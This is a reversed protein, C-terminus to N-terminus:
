RGSAARRRAVLAVVGFVSAAAAILALAFVAVPLEDAVGPSQDVTEVADPAPVRVLEGGLAKVLDGLTQHTVDPDEVGAPQLVDGPGILWYPHLDEPPNADFYQPGTAILLRAGIPETIRGDCGMFAPPLLFIERVPAGRVVAEVTIALGEPAEPDGQTARITGVVIRTAEAKVEDFTVLAGSCAAVGTPM